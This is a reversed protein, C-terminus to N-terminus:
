IQIPFFEHQTDMSIHFPFYPLFLLIGCRKFIFFILGCLARDSTVSFNLTIHCSSIDNGRRLITRLAWRRAIYQMGSLPPAHQQHSSPCHGPTDGGLDQGPCGQAGPCDSTCGPPM